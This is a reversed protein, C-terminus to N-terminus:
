TVSLSETLISHFPQIIRMGSESLGYSFGKNGQPVKFAVGCKIAEEMLFEIETSLAFGNNVDLWSQIPQM